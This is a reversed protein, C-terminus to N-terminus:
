DEIAAKRSQIEKLRAADFKPTRDYFYIGNQEQEVDVIQTWVYGFVDPNDMVADCLGKFRQYYDEENKPRDGYGWAEDGEPLNPNWGTGGFESLFFPQGRFPISPEKDHGRWDTPPNGESVTQLMSAIKAPDQNYDHYDYVDIDRIRHCGGSSDLALRTPDAARAGGVMANMLDELGDIHDEIPLVTECLGAWGVICPHNRDRHITDMWESVMAMPPDTMELGCDGYEGWILFGLQDAHYLSREEFVKEHFRAGNFGVAMALELDGRLAADTPATMVGDPYFGQDLVLRQFVSRGNIKVCKGDIAISRLGAYTEAKDLVSGDADLLELTIDYLNGQGVDWLKADAGLELDLMPAFDLDARVEATAVEQGDFSATARIKAGPRNNSLPMTLTFRKNALDPVIHPRKFHLPPTAELWVTQWIGTTRTYFCGYSDHEPSQKGRPQNGRTKDRCRVVITAAQGAELAKTAEFTFSSWGGRHRGVEQGNIWCTTDYDAAGFHLFVKQGVWDAPVDVDRRYWVANLYDVNTVGSLKSEPCFPVTIEGALEREKLGREMGSDGSDIEFQWQGNLNLWSDRVFQPRPYEPRPISM